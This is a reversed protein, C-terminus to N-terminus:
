NAPGMVTFPYYTNPGNDKNLSHIISAEAFKHGGFLEFCTSKTWWVSSKLCLLGSPDIWWRGDTVKVQNGQGATVDRHSHTLNIWFPGDEDTIQVKHGKVDAEVLVLRGQNASAPKAFKPQAGAYPKPPPAKAAPPADNFTSCAALALLSVLALGAQRVTRRVARFQSPRAPAPSPAPLSMHAKKM